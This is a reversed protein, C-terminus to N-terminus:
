KNSRFGNWPDPMLGSEKLIREHEQMDDLMLTGQMNNVIHFMRLIPSKEPPNMNELVNYLGSSIAKIASFNEAYAEPSDFMEILYKAQDATLYQLNINIQENRNTLLNQKIVLNSNIEM